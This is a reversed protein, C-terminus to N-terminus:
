KVMVKRVTGDSMKIINIGRQPATLRRGDITYRLQAQPTSGEETSVTSISEIVSPNLEVVRDDPVDFAVHIPIYEYEYENETEVVAEGEITYHGPLLNLQGRRNFNPNNQPSVHTQQNNYCMNFWQFDPM